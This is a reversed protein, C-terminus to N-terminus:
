RVAEPAPDFPTSVDQIETTNRLPPRPTGLTSFEILDVDAASFDNPNATPRIRIEPREDVLALAWTQKPDFATFQHLEHEGSIGSASM